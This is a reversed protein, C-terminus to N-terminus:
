KQTLLLYTLNTLESTKDTLLVAEGAQCSGALQETVQADERWAACGEELWLGACGSCEGPDSTLTSITTWESIMQDLFFTTKHETMEERTGNVKM